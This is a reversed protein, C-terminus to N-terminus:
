KITGKIRFDKVVIYKSDDPVDSALYPYFRFYLREGPAIEMPTVNIDAPEFESHKLYENVKFPLQKKDSFDASKSYYIGTKMENTSWGALSFSVNKFVFTAGAQPEISFEFYIHGAEKMTWNDKGLMCVRAYTEEAGNDNAQLEFFKLEPNQLKGSVVAAQPEEVPTDMAWIVSADQAKVAAFSLCALALIFLTKKM